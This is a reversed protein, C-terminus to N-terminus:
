LSRRRPHGTQFARPLQACRTGKLASSSCTHGAVPAEIFVARALADLKRRLPRQGFASSLWPCSSMTTTSALGASCNWHEGADRSGFVHRRIDWSFTRTSGPVAALSARRGPLGSKDGTKANGVRNFGAIILHGFHRFSLGRMIPESQNGTM